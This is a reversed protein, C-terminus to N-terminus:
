AHEQCRNIRQDVTKRIQQEVEEFSGSADIRVIAPDDFASFLAAVKALQEAREFDNLTEQRQERIRRLSSEIDLTLLLVLDPVPAFRNRRFIEQPDAGRAGQYAATSYYYRDTVVVAGRSLAPQICDAVHERRDAIFLELEEEPSAAQRNTYLARIRQGYPGDTPERTVVVEMGKAQLYAGLSQVQSTKGTGDIGEIAILM